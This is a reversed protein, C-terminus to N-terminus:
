RVWVPASQQAEIKDIAVVARTPKHPVRNRKDKVRMAV